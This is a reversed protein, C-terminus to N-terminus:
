PPRLAQTRINRKDATRLEVILGGVSNASSNNAAAARDQGVSTGVKIVSMRILDVSEDEFKQAVVHLARDMEDLMALTKTRPTGSVMKVNAFVMDSEPSPFFTFGVRGGAVLGVALLFLGAAVAM